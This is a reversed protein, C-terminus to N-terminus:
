QGKLPLMSKASIYESYFKPFRDKINEFYGDITSYLFSYADDFDKDFEDKWENKEFVNGSYNGTVYSFRNVETQFKSLLEQTIGFYNLTSFYLKVNEFLSNIRHILEYDDYNRLLSEKINSFTIIDSNETMVGYNRLAEAIKMYAKILDEKLETYKVSLRSIYGSFTERAEFFGPVLSIIDSNTELTRSISKLVNIENNIEFNSRIKHEQLKEDSRDIIESNSIYHPSDEREPSVFVNGYVLANDPPGKYKLDKM